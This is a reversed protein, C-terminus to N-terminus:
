RSMCCASAEARFARARVILARRELHESEIAMGAIFVGGSELEQLFPGGSGGSYARCRVWKRLDDRGEEGGRQIEDGCSRDVTLIRGRGGIEIDASYAFLAQLRFDVPSPRHAALAASHSKGASASISPGDLAKPALPIGGLPDLASALGLKGRSEFKLLGSEMRVRGVEVREPLRILAVDYEALETVSGHAFLDVGEIALVHEAVLGRQRYGFVLLYRGSM